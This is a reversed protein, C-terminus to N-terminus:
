ILLFGMASISSGSFVSTMVSLSPSTTISISGSTAGFCTSRILASARAPSYSLTAKWRTISPKMACVPSTAFPSM